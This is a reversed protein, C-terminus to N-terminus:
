NVQIEENYQPVEFVIDYLGLSAAVCEVQRILLRKISDIIEKSEDTTYAFIDVVATREKVALRACAYIADYDDDENMDEIIIWNRSQSSVDEEITTELVKPGKSRFQLPGAVMKGDVESVEEFSYFCNVFRSIAAVDDESAFRFNM